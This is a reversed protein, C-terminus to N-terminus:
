NKGVLVNMEREFEAYRKEMHAKWTETTVGTNVPPRGLVRCSSMHGSSEPYDYVCGGSFTRFQASGYSTVHVVSGTKNSGTWQPMATHPTFRIYDGPRVDTLPPHDSM